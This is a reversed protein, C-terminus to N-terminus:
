LVNNLIQQAGFKNLKEKLLMLFVYRIGNFVCMWTCARVYIFVVSICICGRRCGYVYKYVLGM